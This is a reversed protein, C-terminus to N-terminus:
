EGSDIKNQRYKIALEVLQRLEFTPSDVDYPGIQYVMARDQKTSPHVTRWLSLIDDDSISDTKKSM